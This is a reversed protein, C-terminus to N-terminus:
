SVTRMARIYRAFRSLASASHETDATEGSDESCLSYRREKVFKPWTNTLVLYKISAEADDFVGANFEEPIDGWYQVRDTIREERGRQELINGEPEDSASGQGSPVHEFPVVPDMFRETRYGHLIRAANGFVKELRKLDQSAINIQFEAHHPSIFETYIRLARNFRERTLESLNEQADPTRPISAKWEGVASLFAINEGSFDRLASFKRLPEPNKDLIYELSSMTYVSETPSNGRELQLLSSQWSISDRSGAKTSDTFISDGGNRAKNKAEWLAIAELTEQELSKHKFVQWCPIFITLIEIFIISLCIWQPAIFYKNVPAMDPVYLAVLWMPTAHLSAICCAITQLRWGQTDKIERSKWLIVPAVVWAWVFQWLVSPWWEWGRIMELKQQAPTGKVETGPVGFWPHYKRSVLYMVITLLLQVAMGTSVVALMKTTYDLRRLRGAITKDRGNCAPSQSLSKSWQYDPKEAYKRQAKAIYLFRSNSAHFLAIGFPLYFSMVWFELGTPIFERISLTVQVAVWYLHLMIVAAFSLALGRIKLFSMKRHVLLFAMGCFLTVTWAGTWALFFVAAPETNLAPAPTPEQTRETESDM